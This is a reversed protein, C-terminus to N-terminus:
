FRANWEEADYQARLGDARTKEETTLDSEQCLMVNFTSAFSDILVTVAEEWTVPQGLVGELTAARERVRLRASERASEDEFVLANCIRTIDGALPLSGHQLVGGFKRVQASGVLKKGDVTIEYHSPM